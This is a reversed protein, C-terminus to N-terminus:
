NNIYSSFPKETDCVLYTHHGKKQEEPLDAKWNGYKQTLYEDYKEPIMVNVGEFCAETGKGYQQVPAYELKGQWNGHNCWILSHSTQYKSVLKTYKRTIKEMNKNLRFAGFIGHILKTKSSRPFDTVSLYLSEYYRKFFELKKREFNKNPYGDLPFVDIFIGHNMHIKAVTKEIFTTESNRLKTYMKPFNKDTESNQVFLNEPLLVQAEKIFINYDNRPMAVDIDDDWPIFGKYKAAGLASGCVLYYTLSLKECVKIFECLIEFEKQQLPTM